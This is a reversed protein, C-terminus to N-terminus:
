GIYDITPISPIIGADAGQQLLTAIAQRGKNGYDVTWKNVYMGVFEDALEHGMDRAYQLAHRVAEERHDLSYQISRKLIATVETMDQLGM